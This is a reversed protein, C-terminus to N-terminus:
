RSRLQSRDATPLRATLDAEQDASPPNPGFVANDVDKAWTEIDTRAGRGAERAVAQPTSELHGANRRGAWDQFMSLLTRRRLVLGVQMLCPPPLPQKLVSYHEAEVILRAGEPLSPLTGFMFRGDPDTETEAVVGNDALSPVWLLVRARAVPDQTHADRVVGDWGNAHSPQGAVTVGVNVPATTQGANSPRAPRRWTRVVWLTAGLALLAWPVHAWPLPGLLTVPFAVPRSPRFWPYEPVYQASFQVVRERASQLRGTVSAKGDRVPGLGLSRGDALLEVWGSTLMGRDGQALFTTHFEDNTRVTTPVLETSLIVTSVLTLPVDQTTLVANTGTYLTARLTAIGAGPLTATAVSLTLPTDPVLPEPEVLTTTTTERVLEIGVAPRSSSPVDTATVVVQHTSVALPWEPATELALKPVPADLSPQLPYRAPDFFSNGAFVLENSSAFANTVLCFRGKDDTTPPANDCGAVQSPGAITLPVERIPQNMDDHLVGTTEYGQVGQRIRVADFQAIGRVRLTAGMVPPALMLVLLFAIAVKSYRLASRSFSIRTRRQREANM